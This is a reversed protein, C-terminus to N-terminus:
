RVVAPANWPSLQGSRADGTGDHVGAQEETTGEKWEM